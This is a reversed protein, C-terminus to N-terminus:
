IKRKRKRLIDPNKELFEDLKERNFKWVEGVMYQVNGPFIKSSVIAQAKGTGCGLHNALGRIGSLIRPEEETQQPREEVEAPAVPAVAEKGKMRAARKRGSQRMLPRLESNYLRLDLSQLAEMLRSHGWLVVKGAPTLVDDDRLGVLHWIRRGVQKGYYSYLFRYSGDQPEASKYEALHAVFDDVLITMEEYTPEAMGDKYATFDLYDTFVKDTTTM